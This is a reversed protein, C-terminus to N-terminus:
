ESLISFYKIMRLFLSDDNKCEEGQELQRDDYWVGSGDPIYGRKVYMRQASGYGSHLGVGLSVCNSNESAIQEVIDMIKNGIRQKQYKILVNFDCIEPIGQNAFPGNHADHVLTAYGAVEDCVEAVIVKREDNEQESFYKLFQSIPKHWKQFAFAKTFAQADEKKMLRIVLNSNKYFIM